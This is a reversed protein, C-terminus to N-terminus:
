EFIIMWTQQAALWGRKKQSESNDGFMQPLKNRFMHQFKDCLMQPLKDGFM